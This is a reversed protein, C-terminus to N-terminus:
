IGLAHKPVDVVLTDRKARLEALKEAIEDARNQRDTEAVGRVKDRDTKSADLDAFKSNLAEIKELGEIAQEDHTARQEKLNNVESLFAKYEKNTSANNMKERLEDIHVKLRESEGEANSTTAKLQRIQTQLSESQTGLDALKKTQEGLFREASELREQLGRIEIDVRFLCLLQTTVSM